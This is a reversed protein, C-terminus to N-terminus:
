CVVLGLDASQPKMGLVGVFELFHLYAGGPCSGLFVEPFTSAM